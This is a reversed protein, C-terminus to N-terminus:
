FVLFIIWFSLNKLFICGNLNTQEELLQTGTNNGRTHDRKPGTWYSPTGGNNREWDFDDFNKDDVFGCMGKDFTCEGPSESEASLLNTLYLFKLSAVLIDSTTKFNFLLRFHESKFECPKCNVMKMDDLAIDGEYSSGITAIVSFRFNEM